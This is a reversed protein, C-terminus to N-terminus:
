LCIKQSADPSVVGLFLANKLWTVDLFRQSSRARHSVIAQLAFTLPIDNRVRERMACRFLPYAPKPFSQLSAVNPLIIGKARSPKSSDGFCSTLGM